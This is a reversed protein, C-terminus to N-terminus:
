SKPSSVKLDEAEPQAALRLGVGLRRQLRPHDPLHGLWRRWRQQWRRRRQQRQRRRQQRLIPLFRPGPQLSVALVMVQEMEFMRWVLEEVCRGTRLHRIRGYVAGYAGSAKAWMVLNGWLAKGYGLGRYRPLLYLAWEQMVPANPIFRHTILVAGAFGVVVGEDEAVILREQPNGLINLLQVHAYAASAEVPVLSWMSERRLRTGLEFVVLMDAIQAPRILM